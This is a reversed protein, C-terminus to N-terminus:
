LVGSARSVVLLTLSLWICVRAAYTGLASLTDDLSRRFPLQMDTGTFKFVWVFRRCWRQEIWRRLTDLSKAPPIAMDNFVWGM